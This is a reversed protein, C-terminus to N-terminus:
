SALRLAEQADDPVALAQGVRQLLATPTFPKSLLASETGAAGSLIQMIEANGSMFLVRLRPYRNALRDAMLRGSMGPMVVDTLVLDVHGAVGELVHLAEHPNQAEVVKYGVHELTRRVFERVTAEDDVLLVTGPSRPAAGDKPQAEM